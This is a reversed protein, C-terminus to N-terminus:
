LGNEALRAMGADTIKAKDRDEGTIVVVQEKLELARLATKFGSYSISDDEGLADAWLTGVNLLRPAVGQLLRLIILETRM